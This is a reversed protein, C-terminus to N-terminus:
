GSHSLHSRSKLGGKFAVAAYVVPIVDGRLDAHKGESTKVLIHDVLETLLVGDVHGHVSSDGDSSKVTAVKIVNRFSEV